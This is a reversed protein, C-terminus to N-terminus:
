ANIPKPGAARIQGTQRPSSTTLACYAHTARRKSSATPRRSTPCRVQGYPNVASRDSRGEDGINSLVFNSRSARTAPKPFDYQLMFHLRGDAFPRARRDQLQRRLPRSASIRQRHPAKMRNQHSCVNLHCFTLNHEAGGCSRQSDLRLTHKTQYQAPKAIM